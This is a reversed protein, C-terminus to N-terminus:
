KLTTTKATAMAHSPPFGWTTIVYCSLAVETQSLWCNRGYRQDPHMLSGMFEFRAFQQSL